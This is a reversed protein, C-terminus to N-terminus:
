GRINHEQAKWPLLRRELKALVWNSSLGLIGLLLIGFLLRQTQMLNSASLILYGIGKDAAIMEATVLLLLAVGAGLRLGAFVTPLSAPLLVKLAVRTKTSGLTIAAKILIPEVDRVGARTNVVVPFFVGLAIVGIKSSEGLGLWLMLLPLIAIKPIPYTAGILPHLLLDVKTSVGMVLGLGVGAVAGATFGWFIRWLSAMLHGFLEGNQVLGLGDVVVSSLPPLFLPPVLGLNGVAEWLALVCAVSFIGLPGEKRNMSVGELASGEDRFGYGM